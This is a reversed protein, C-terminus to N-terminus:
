EPTLGSPGNADNVELSVIFFISTLRSSFGFTFTSLSNPKMFCLIGYPVVVKVYLVPFSSLSKLNFLYFM